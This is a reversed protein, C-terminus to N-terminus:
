KKPQNITDLYSQIRKLFHNKVKGFDHYTQGQLADSDSLHFASRYYRIRIGLAKKVAQLSATLSLIKVTIVPM